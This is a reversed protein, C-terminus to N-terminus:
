VGKQSGAAQQLIARVGLRRRRVIRLKLRFGAREIGKISPVNGPDVAIYASGFGARRMALFLQLLANTYYGRARFREFTNFDFLGVAGPCPFRLDQDLELYGASTWGVTALQEGVFFGHCLNRDEFRRKIGEPYALAKEYGLRELDGVALDRRVLPVSISPLDETLSREYVLWHSESWAVQRVYALLKGVLGRLGGARLHYALKRRLERM